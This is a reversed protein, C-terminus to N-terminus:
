REMGPTPWGSSLAMMKVTASALAPVIFFRPRLFAASASHTPIRRPFGGCLARRTGAAGWAICWVNLHMRVRESAGKIGAFISM